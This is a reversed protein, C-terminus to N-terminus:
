DLVVNVKWGNNNFNFLRNKCPNKYRNLRVEKSDRALVNEVRYIYYSDGLEKARNYESTSLYFCSDVNVSTKVEIYIKEGTREYSVIDYGATVDVEGVYEPYYETGELKKIERDLVFREGLSGVRRQFDKLNLLDDITMGFKKRSSVFNDELLPHPEKEVLFESTPISVENVVIKKKIEGSCNVCVIRGGLIVWLDGRNELVSECVPCRMSYKKKTAIIDRYTLEKIGIVNGLDRIIRDSLYKSFGFEKGKEAILKKMFEGNLEDLFVDGSSTVFKNEKSSFKETCFETLVGNRLEKEFVLHWVISYEMKKITDPVKLVDKVKLLQKYTLPVGELARENGEDPLNKYDKLSAEVPIKEEICFKILNRFAALDRNITQVAYSIKKAEAVYDDIDGSNIETIEKDIFLIIKLLSGEYIDASDKKGLTELYRFIYDKNKPTISEYKTKKSRTDKKKLSKTTM